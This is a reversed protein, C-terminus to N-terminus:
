ENIRKRKFADAHLEAFFLGDGEDPVTNGNSVEKLAVNSEVDVLMWESAPHVM